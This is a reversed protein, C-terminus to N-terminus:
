EIFTGGLVILAKEGPRPQQGNEYQVTLGLEDPGIECLSTNFADPWRLSLLSLSYSMAEYSDKGRLVGVAGGCRAFAAMKRIMIKKGLLKMQLLTLTGQTQESLLDWRDNPEIEFACLFSNKAPYEGGGTPSRYLQRPAM